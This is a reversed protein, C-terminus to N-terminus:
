IGGKKYVISFDTSGALNLVIHKAAVMHVNSPNSMGRSIQSSSYMTDYRLVSALYMGTKAIAQYRQKEDANLLTEEPQKTSLHPGYGPTLTPKCNAFSFREVASKTYDELDIKLTKEALNCTVQLGLVRSLDGMDTNKLRDMLQAKITEIVEINGGIM